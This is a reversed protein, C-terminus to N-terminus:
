TALGAGGRVHGNWRDRADGQSRDSRHPWPRDARHGVGIFRDGQHHERQHHEHHQREVRLRRGDGRRAAYWRGM